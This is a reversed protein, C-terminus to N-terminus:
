RLSSSEYGKELAKLQIQQWNDDDLTYPYKCYTTTDSIIHIGTINLNDLLIKYVDRSTAGVGFTGEIDIQGLKAYGLALKPDNWDYGNSEIWEKFDSIEKEYWDYQKVTVTRGWEVDFEGSYFRQHNIESCVADTLVPADEDNYVERLTKGIQSWHLYVGGLQRDYRNKKFLEFDEEHLDYRKANLFTTIQASRIWDPNGVSMRYAKVWSEIEHCLNNLQRIAYKTQHDAQKYFPSLSWATGQLEEFYRHLQNCAEHKLLLGPFNKEDNKEFSGIPLDASYQFDQPTFKELKEYHPDFDFSNIQDVSKNVQEVLYNLNRKNGAFGLFCFNKELLKAQKLNEELAKLWRVGLPTDYVNIVYSINDLDVKVKDQLYKKKSSKISLM